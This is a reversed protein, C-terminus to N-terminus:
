TFIYTYFTISVQPDDFNKVSQKLDTFINLTYIMLLSELNSDTLNSRLKNNKNM